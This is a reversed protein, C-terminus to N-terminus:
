QQTHGGGKSDSSSSSGGNDDDSDGVGSDSNYDGVVGDGICDMAMKVAMTTAAVTM